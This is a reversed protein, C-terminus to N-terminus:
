KSMYLFIFGEIVVSYVFLFQIRMKRQTSTVVSNNHVTNGGSTQPLIIYRLSRMLFVSLSLIFGLVILYYAWGLYQGITHKLCLVVVISVYKYSSFSIIDYIKIQSCNLLYLGVKFVAVDLVAFALTQSALYGFLQPHFEGSLGQFAAWLLIYTVFSMIPIYLDPANVDYAPPLYQGSGNDKALIRTWDKHRFPFLILLIKKLVYSNSVQFYYKIDGSFSGFNEQIYQNSQQFGSRAFQSALAAAPDNLFTGFQPQGPQSFQQQQQQQQHQQAPGTGASAAAAAAATAPSIPQTYHPQPHHLNSSSQPQYSDAAYGYPNSM